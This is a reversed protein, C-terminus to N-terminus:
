RSIMKEQKSNSDETRKIIQHIMPNTILLKSSSKIKVPYSLINNRGCPDTAQVYIIGKKEKVGNPLKEVTYSTTSTQTSSFIGDLGTQQWYYTVPANKYAEAIVEFSLIDGEAVEITHGSNGVIDTFEPMKRSSSEMLFDLFIRIAAIDESNKIGYSHGAEYM